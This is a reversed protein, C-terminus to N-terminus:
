IECLVPFSVSLRLAPHLARSVTPSGSGPSKETKVCRGHRLTMRRMETEASNRIAGFRLHDAGDFFVAEDCSVIMVGKEWRDASFYEFFGCLSMRIRELMNGCIGLKANKKGLTWFCPKASGASVGVAGVDAIM